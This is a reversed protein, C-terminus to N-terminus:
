TKKYIRIFLLESSFLIENMSFAITLDFINFLVNVESVGVMMLFVHSNELQFLIFIYFFLEGAKGMMIVPERPAEEPISIEMSSIAEDKSPEKPKEISINSTESTATEKKEISVDEMMQITKFINGRGAGGGSSGRGSSGAAPLSGIASGVASDDDGGGIDPGSSGRGMTALLARGRGAMGVAGAGDSSSSTSIFDLIKGRGLSRHTMSPSNTDLGSDVKPDSKAPGSGGDSSSEGTAQLFQRLLNGRGAM